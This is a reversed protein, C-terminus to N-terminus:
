GQHDRGLAQLLAARMEGMEKRIALLEPFGPVAGKSNYAHALQNINSGIKGLHALLRVLEAHEAPPRRVARPGADGLAQRRMYAGVSLGAQHARQGIATREHDNCRVNVLKTRPDPVRRRGKWPVARKATPRPKEAEV